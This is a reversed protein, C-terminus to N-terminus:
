SPLLRAPASLKGSSPQAGFDPRTEMVTEHPMPRYARQILIDGTHRNSIVSGASKAPHEPHRNPQDAIALQRPKLNQPIPRKPYLRSVSALFFAPAPQGSRDM